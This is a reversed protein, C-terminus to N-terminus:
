RNTGLRRLNGRLRTQLHLLSTVDLPPKLDGGATLDNLIVNDTGSGGGITVNSVGNTANGLGFTLSDNQDGLNINFVAAPAKVHLVALNPPAQKSGLAVPYIPVGQEGLKAAQRLPPFEIPRELAERVAAEVEGAAIGAPGEWAGVVREDAVEFELREDGFAVSARM